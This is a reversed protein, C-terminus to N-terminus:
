LKPLEEVKHKSEKPVVKKEEKVEEKKGVENEKRVEAKSEIMKKVIEGIRENLQSEEIEVKTTDSVSIVLSKNM